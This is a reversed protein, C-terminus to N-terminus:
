GTPIFDPNPNTIHTPSRPRERLLRIRRNGTQVNYHMRAMLIQAANNEARDIDAQPNGNAIYFRRNLMEIFFMDFTTDMPMTDGIAAVRTVANTFRVMVTESVGINKPLWLFGDTVAYEIARPDESVQDYPTDNVSVTKTKGYGTPLKYAKYM